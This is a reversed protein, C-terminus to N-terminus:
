KRNHVYGLKNLIEYIDQLASKYQEVEDTLLAMTTKLEEIKSM